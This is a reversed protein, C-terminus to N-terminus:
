NAIKWGDKTKCWNWESQGSTGGAQTTFKVGRCQMGNMTFTRTPTVTGSAKTQPSSWTYTSGDQGDDLASYIAKFAIEIDGKTLYSLPGRSEFLENQALAPPASLAASLVAGTMYLIKDIKM